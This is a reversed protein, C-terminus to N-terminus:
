LFNFCCLYSKKGQNRLIRVCKLHLNKTNKLQWIVIILIDLPAELCFCHM